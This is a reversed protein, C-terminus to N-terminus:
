KCQSSIATTFNTFATQVSQIEAPLQALATAGGSSLQGVTSSLKTLADQLAKVQPQFAANATTSLTKVQAEIKAIDSKVASAGGQLVNTSGLSSVSTQLQKAAACFAASSSTSTTSSSSSGCGAPLAALALTGLGIACRRRLRSAAIV